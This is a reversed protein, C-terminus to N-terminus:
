SCNRVRTMPRSLISTIKWSVVKFSNSSTLLKLWDVQTQNIGCLKEPITIKFTLGAM